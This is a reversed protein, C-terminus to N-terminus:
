GLDVLVASYREDLYFLFLPTALHKPQQTALTPRQPGLPLWGIRPFAISTALPPKRTATILACTSLAADQPLPNLIKGLTHRVFFFQYVNLLGNALEIFL